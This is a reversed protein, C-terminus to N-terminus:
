AARSKKGAGTVGADEELARKAKACKDYRERTPPNFKDDILYKSNKPLCTKNGKNMKVPVGNFDVYLRKPDKPDLDFNSKTIPGVAVFVTWLERHCYEGFDGALGRHLQVGLRRHRFGDDDLDGTNEFLYTQLYREVDAATDKLRFQGVEVLFFGFEEQLQKETILTGDTRTIVPVRYGRSTCWRFGEKQPRSM